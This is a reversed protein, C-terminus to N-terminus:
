KLYFNKLIKNLYFYNKNRTEDRFMQNFSYFFFTSMTPVLNFISNGTVPVILYNSFTNYIFYFIYCCMLIFRSLISITCLTFSMRFMNREIQQEKAERKRQQELERSTTPRNNISSM